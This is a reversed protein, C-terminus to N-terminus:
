VTGTLRERSLLGPPYLRVASGQAFMTLHPDADTLFAWEPGYVEGWDLDVSLSEVPYLSWVPHSVEYRIPLGLFTAGFGWRNEKFFHERSAPDPLVAPKRGTVALKHVRERWTLRYEASITDHAPRIDVELPAVAYPENYLGRAAWAVRRRPVFECVFLVGREDGHKVHIRLNLEPFHGLGPWGLGFLRTDRFEFGVLSVFANGDVVDLDLWHHIRPRVLGPPVAYTVIVLNSWSATLLPKSMQSRIESSLYNRLSPLM